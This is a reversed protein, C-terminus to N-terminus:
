PKVKLWKAGEMPPYCVNMNKLVVGEHGTELARRFLENKFDVSSEAIKIKSGEVWELREGLPLHNTEMDDWVLVDFCILESGVLECDLATIPPVDRPGAQQSLPIRKGHRSWFEFRGDRDCWVMCRIGNYKVQAMWNQNSALDKWLPGGFQIPEPRALKRPDPMIDDM